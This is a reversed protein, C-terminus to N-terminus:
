PRTGWQDAWCGLRVTDGEVYGTDRLGERLADFVPSGSDPVGPHLFGIVPMGQAQQARVTLPWAAATGGLLTIFERRNMGFM